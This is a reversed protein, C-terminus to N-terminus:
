ASTVITRQVHGAFHGRISSREIFASGIIRRTVQASTSICINFLLTSIGFSFQFSSILFRPLEVCPKGGALFIEGPNGIGDRENVAFTISDEDIGKQGHLVRLLQYVPDRFAALVEDSLVDGMGVTVM